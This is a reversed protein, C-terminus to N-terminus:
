PFWFEICSSCVFFRVLVQMQTGASATCHTTAFIEARVAAAIHEPDGLGTVDMYAEDCSLTQVSATHRMLIRYMQAHAHSHTHMRTHM